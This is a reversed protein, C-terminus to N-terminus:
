SSNALLAQPDALPPSRACKEGSRAALRDPCSRTIEELTAVDPVRTRQVCRAGNDDWTAEHRSPEPDPQQIGFRDYVNVVTGDRTHSRGDGCYDARLMRTCAQHLAWMPAGNAETRWYKYGMRVCKGIAGSTCTISIAGAAHEHVGSSTWVGSVPFGLALGDPGPTCLNRWSDDGDHVSLAYLTVEGDRDKPDAVVADIRIEARTGAGDDIGLVAGVLAEQPLVNGDADAVEFRTGVITVAHPPQLAVADGGTAAMALLLFVSRHLAIRMQWGHPPRHSM